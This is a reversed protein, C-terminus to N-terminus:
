RFLQQAVGTVQQFLSLRFFCPPQQFLGNGVIGAKGNRMIVKTNDGALQTIQPRGLDSIFLGDPQCRFIQGKGHIQGIQVKYRYAPRIISNMDVKFQKPLEWAVDLHKSGQPSDALGHTPRVLSFREIATRKLDFRPVAFHTLRQLPKSFLTSMQGSAPIELGSEM